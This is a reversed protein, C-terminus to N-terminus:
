PLVEFAPGRISNVVVQGTTAGAPVTTVITNSTASSVTAITGNFEVSPSAPFGDGYITVQSGPPGETPVIEIIAGQGSTFKQVSLLDGDQDYQYAVVNGLSDIVEILRSARDYVYTVDARAQLPFGFTVATITVAVMTAIMAFRFSVASLLRGFVSSPRQV